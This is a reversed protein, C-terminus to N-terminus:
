QSPATGTFGSGASGIIHNNGYTLLRGGNITTLAGSANSDLLTMDILAAANTGNAQIGATGNGAIVDNKLNLVNAGGAGSVANMGNGVNNNITSNSIDVSVLGNTTDTKLGGGTNNAITVRDFTALVSGGSGPQILVGGGSMNKFVSNSVVLKSFTTTNVVIANSSNTFHVNDVFLAAGQTFTIVTGSGLEVQTINKIFVTIGSGNITFPGIAAVTGGCDITISITIQVPEQYNSGDLCSLIGGPETQTIARIPGACPATNSCDNSDLGNHSVYTRFITAAAPPVSLFAILTAILAIGAFKTSIM